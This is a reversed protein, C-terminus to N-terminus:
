QLRGFHDTGKNGIKTNEYKVKKLFEAKDAYLEDDSM